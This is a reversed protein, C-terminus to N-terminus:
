DSGLVLNFFLAQMIETNRQISGLTSNFKPSIKGMNLNHSVSNELSVVLSYFPRVQIFPLLPKKEFQCPLDHPGIASRHKTSVHLKAEKKLSSGSGHSTVRAEEGPLSRKSHSQSECM